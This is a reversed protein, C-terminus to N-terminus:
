KHGTSRSSFVGGALQPYNQGGGAARIRRGIGNANNSDIPLCDADPPKLLLGLRGGQRGPDPAEPRYDRRTARKRRADDSVGHQQKKIEQIERFHLQFSELDM